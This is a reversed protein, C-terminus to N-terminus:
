LTDLLKPLTNDWGDFHLARDDVLVKCFLKGCVIRRFPMKYKTLWAEIKEYDAWPRATYIIIKYGMTDLKNLSYLSGEIPELLTFDPYHSQAITGDLDIGVWKLEDEKIKEEQNM